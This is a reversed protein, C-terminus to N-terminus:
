CGAGAHVLAHREAIKWGLSVYRILFADSTYRPRQTCQICETSISANRSPGYTRSPSPM